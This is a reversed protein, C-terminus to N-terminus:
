FITNGTQYIYELISPSQNLKCKIYCTLYTMKGLQIDKLKSLIQDHTETRLIEGIQPLNDNSAVNEMGIGIDSVGNHNLSM